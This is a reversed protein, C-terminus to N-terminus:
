MTDESRYRLQELSDVLHLLLGAIRPAESRADRLCQISVMLVLPELLRDPCSFGGSMGDAVESQFHPYLCLLADRYTSLVPIIDKMAPYFGIGIAIRSRIDRLSFIM